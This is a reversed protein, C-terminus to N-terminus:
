FSEKLSIMRKSLSNSIDFNYPPYSLEEPFLRSEYMEHASVTCVAAAGEDSDTGKMSSAKETGM